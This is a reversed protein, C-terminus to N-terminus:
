NRLKDMFDVVPDNPVLQATVNIDMAAISEFVDIEEELVKISKTIDKSGEKYSMNGVNVHTLKGGAKLYRLVDTPNKFVLFLRQKGYKGSRINKAASEVPLVSLRMSTPAAMRLSSKQLSDAAAEDNIVIIRQTHLSPAWIGAVQGHILREDIRVNVINEKGKYAEYLQSNDKPLSPEKEIETQKMKQKVDVIGTTAAQILKKVTATSNLTAEIVLPLSMGAIIEVNESELYNSLAVNCPTGGLLDAIILSSGNLAKMKKLLEEEFQRNDGDPTLAVVHVHDQKGVIMELSAKVGEAMSGHSILIINQM